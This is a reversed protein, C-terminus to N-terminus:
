CRSIISYLKHNKKLQLPVDEPLRTSGQLKVVRAAKSTKESTGDTMLSKYTALCESCRTLHTKGIADRFAETGHGSSYNSDATVYPAEDIQMNSAPPVAVLAM